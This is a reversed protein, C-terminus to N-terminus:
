GDQDESNNFSSLRENRSHVKETLFRPAFTNKFFLTFESKASERHPGDKDTWALDIRHPYRPDTVFDRIARFANLLDREDDFYQSLEVKVRQSPRPEKAEKAM